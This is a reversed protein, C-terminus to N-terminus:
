LTETGEDLKDALDEFIKDLDACRMENDYVSYYCGWATFEAQPTHSMVVKVNNPNLIASLIFGVVFAIFVKLM